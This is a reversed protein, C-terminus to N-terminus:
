KSRTLAAPLSKKPSSWSRHILGMSTLATSAVSRFCARADGRAVSQHNRRSLRRCPTRPSGHDPRGFERDFHAAPAEHGTANGGRPLAETLLEAGSPKCKCRAQEGPMRDYPCPCPPRSSSSLVGSVVRCRVPWPPAPWRCQPRTQSPTAWDPRPSKASRAKGGGSTM